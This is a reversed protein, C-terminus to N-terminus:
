AWLDIIFGKIRQGWTVPAPPAMYTAVYLAHEAELKRLAAYQTKLDRMAYCALQKRHRTYCAGFETVRAVDYAQKNHLAIDHRLREISRHLRERQGNYNHNPTPTTSGNGILTPYIAALTTAQTM